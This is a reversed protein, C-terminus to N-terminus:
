ANDAGGDWVFGEKGNTNICKHCPCDKNDCMLCNGICDEAHQTCCIRCLDGDEKGLETRTALLEAELAAIRKRTSGLMVCDYDAEECYETRHATELENIYRLADAAVDEFCRYCSTMAAVKECRRDSDTEAIADLGRKIEDPTKM